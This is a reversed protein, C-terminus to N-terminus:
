RRYILSVTIIGNEGRKAYNKKEDEAMNGDSRRM